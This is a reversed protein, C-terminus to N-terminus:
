KKTINLNTVIQNELEEGHLNVGILIGKKNILYTSPIADFGFSSVLPSEWGKLDSVQSWTIGDAKIAKTWEEKKTDLSVGFIEFGDSRYKKYLAVLEPNSKRCPACWSAWFDILVLKGKLSALSVPKGNVDNLNIAPVPKGMQDAKLQKLVFPQMYTKFQKLFPSDPIVNEYHALIKLLYDTEVEPNLINLAYIAILNTDERAILDKVYKIQDVRVDEYKKQLVFKVSDFNTQTEAVRMKDALGRYSTEFGMMKKILTNMKESGSSGSVTYEFSFTSDNTLVEVKEGNQMILNIVKNRGLRLQYFSPIDSKAKLMFSGDDKIDFSDITVVDEGGFVDLYIKGTANAVKGTVAIEDNHKKCSIIALASLIVVIKSFNM